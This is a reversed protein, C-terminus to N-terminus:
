RSVRLAASELRLVTCHRLRGAEIGRYYSRGTRPQFEQVERRLEAWPAMAVNTERTEGARIRGRVYAEHIERALIEHTGLTLLEATCTRDLLGFAHLNDFDQGSGEEGELLRALGAEHTMSVVIPTRSATLHQRLSLAASLGQVDDGLTVYARAIRCQGQENFLFEAQQFERSHIDIQRTMLDCVKGLQPYRSLLLAKKEEARRDVIIVPLPEGDTRFAEFRLKALQVVLEAGLSGLGVILIPPPETKEAETGSMAPHEHLLARAGREYINFFELRFADPKQAAIEKERLLMALEPPAIHIFCTLSGNRREKVLERAGVAVEANDGADGLVSFLYHARQVGARRLQETDTADGILNIMGRTRCSQFRSNAADKELVVVRYGQEACSVALRYGKEGLGCIVVHDQAFRVQFLQLQDRFIELLAKAATYVLVGPALLRAVQLQWPLDGTVSGSELTFLQLSLYVLDWLSFPRGLSAFYRQFGVMGLVFGAM